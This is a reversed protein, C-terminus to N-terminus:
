YLYTIRSKPTEKNNIVTSVYRYPNLRIQSPDVQSGSPGAGDDDLRTRIQKNRPM